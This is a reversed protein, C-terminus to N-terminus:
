SACARKLHQHHYRYQPVLCKQMTLKNQYSMKKQVRFIEIRDHWLAKTYVLSFFFFFFFFHVDKYTVNGAATGPTQNNKKKTYLNEMKKKM